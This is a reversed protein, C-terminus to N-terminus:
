HIGGVKIEAEPATQSGHITYSDPGDMKKEIYRLIKTTTFCLIFYYIAAITMTPFTQFTAGSAFKAVYFLETVGIVSLVCSDKMNIIFENGIAPMINRIAQPLVINTMTQGHTMGISHAAEYQGHDISIIGGRVIESMYAGTNVSIILLGAAFRPLTVGYLMAIGYFIMMAQVMMPTSRFVEIYASLIFDFFKYLFKKIPNASAAMPITKYIGILLGIGSGVFTGIIALLITSGTGKLLLPGYMEQIRIMWDFFSM